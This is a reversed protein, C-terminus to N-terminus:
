WVSVGGRGCDMVNISVCLGWKSSELLLSLKSLVLFLGRNILVVCRDMICLMIGDTVVCSCQVCSFLFWWVRYVRLLCVCAVVCDM